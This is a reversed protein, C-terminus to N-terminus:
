HDAILLQFVTGTKIEIMMTAPKKIPRIRSRHTAAACDM